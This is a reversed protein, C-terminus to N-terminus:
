KGKKLFVVVDEGVIPTGDLLNGTLELVLVDGDSVAGLAAVIDRTTFKLNLDDFGDAGEDTCDSADTEGTFPVFPTAVDELASRLPAVGDLRVSAPDVELVDFDATGLIAVPLVGRSKTNLPNPCSGPKIDISIVRASSMSVIQVGALGRFGSTPPNTALTLSGGSVTVGTIVDWDQGQVLSDSKNGIFSGVTIGNVTFPGTPVIPNTPSYVYVDYTGDDVKAFQATWDRSSISFFNDQTLLAVPSTVVEDAGAISGATVTVSIAITAGTIDLLNSTTGLTVIRNWHGAQGAAAGFSSPPADFVSGFDVNIDQAQTTQALGGAIIAVLVIYPLIRVKKTVLV